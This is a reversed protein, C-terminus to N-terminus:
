SMNKDPLYLMEQIQRLSILINTTFPDKLSQVFWNKIILLSKRQGASNKTEKEHFSQAIINKVYMKKKKEQNPFEEQINKIHNPIDYLPANILIKYRSLNIEGSSAFPTNFLLAPTPQIGHMEMNASSRLYQKIITKTRINSQQHEDILDVLDLNGYTKVVKKKLYNQSSLLTYTKNIRDHLSLTPTKFSHPLSRHCNPNIACGHFVFNGCKQHGAKFQSALHDVKFTRLIDHLCIGDVQILTKLDM